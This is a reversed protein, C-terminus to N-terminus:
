SCSASGRAIVGSLPLGALTRERAPQRGGALGGAVAAIGCPQKTLPAQRGSLAVPCQRSLFGSCSCRIRQLLTSEVGPQHALVASGEEGYLM